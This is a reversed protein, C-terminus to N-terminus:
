GEWILPNGEADLMVSLGGGYGADIFLYMVDTEKDVLIYKSQQKYVVNLREYESKTEIVSGDDNETRVTSGDCACLSLCLTLTLFLSILKKM